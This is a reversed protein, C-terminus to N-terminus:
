PVKKLERYEDYAVRFAANVASSASSSSAGGGSGGLDDSPSNSRSRNNSM